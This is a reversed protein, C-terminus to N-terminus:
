HPQVAVPSLFLLGSIPLVESSGSGDLYVPAALAVGSQDPGADALPVSGAPLVDLYALMGGGVAGNSSMSLNRDYVAHTGVDTPTWLVDKTKGAPLMVSYQERAYPYPNGDEAIVRMYSGQLVPTHSKLGANLFRILKTTNVMGISLPLQALSYSQGNILFYKPKYNLPNAETKTAHLAPDIESFLLTVENIVDTYNGVKLAGYLGMHVQKAPHSGSQYLFTGPKLNSWTYTALGGGASAEHTFARVRARGQGDTIFQPSLSTPQGPIILSVPESLCNRVTITLAGGAVGIQEPGPTWPVPVSPCSGPDPIFGWMSIPTAHVPHIGNLSLPLWTWHM